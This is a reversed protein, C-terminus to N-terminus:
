GAGDGVGGAPHGPEAVHLRQDALGDLAAAACELFERLFEQLLLKFRQDHEAM